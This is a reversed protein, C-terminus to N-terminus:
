KKLSSAAPSRDTSFRPSPSNSQLISLDYRYGAQRDRASFPHPLLRLWKRLLTAIKEASLGDALAQLRQPNPCSLIGNDLAEYAIGQQGLQRKM